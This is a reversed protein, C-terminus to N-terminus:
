DDQRGAVFDAARVVAPNVADSVFRKHEYLREQRQVQAEYAFKLQFYVSAFVEKPPRYRLAWFTSYDVGSTLSAKEMARDMQGPGQYERMVIADAWKRADRVLTDASMKQEERLRKKCM